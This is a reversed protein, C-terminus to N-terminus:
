LKVVREPSKLWRALDEPTNPLVGAVVTRRAFRTLPPGALGDAEDLGPIIHCSGCAQRGIVIKGRDPDGSAGGHERGARDSCAVLGLSAALGVGALARFTPASM